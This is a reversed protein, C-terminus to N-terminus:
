NPATPQNPPQISFFHHPLPQKSQSRGTISAASAFLCSGPRVKGVAFTENLDGHWGGIYATVDVNVIDGEQLERQDPIGHCIVQRPQTTPALLPHSTHPPPHDRLLLACLRELWFRLWGAVLSLARRTAAVLLGLM